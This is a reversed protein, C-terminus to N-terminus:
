AYDVIGDAVTESFEVESGENRIVIDPEFALAERSHGASGAGPRDIRIVKISRGWGTMAARERIGRPPSLALASRAPAGDELVFPQLPPLVLITVAVGDRNLDRQQPRQARDEIVGRGPSM